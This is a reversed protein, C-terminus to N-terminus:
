RVLKGNRIDKLMMSHSNCCEAENFPCPGHGQEPCSDCMVHACGSFLWLFIMMTLVILLVLGADVEFKNM